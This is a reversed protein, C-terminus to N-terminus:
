FVYVPHSYLAFQKHVPQFKKFYLLIVGNAERVQFHNWATPNHHSPLFFAQSFACSAPTLVPQLLENHNFSCRTSSLIHPVSTSSSNYAASPKFSHLKCLCRLVTTHQHPVLSRYDSFRAQKVQRQLISSSKDAEDHSHGIDHLGKWWTNCRM